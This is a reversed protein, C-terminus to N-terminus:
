SQAWPSRVSKALLVVLTGRNKSLYYAYFNFVTSRRCYGIDTYIKRYICHVFDLISKTLFHRLNNEMGNKFDETGNWEPMKWIGYRFKREMENEMGSEIGNEMGNEMGNEIGSEMGSEMESELGREMGSEM